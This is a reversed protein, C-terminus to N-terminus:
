VKKGITTTDTGDTMYQAPGKNYHSAIRKRKADIEKITEPTEPQHGRWRWDDISTVFGNGVGNSLPPLVKREREEPQLKGRESLDRVKIGMSALFADHAARAKLLRETPKKARRYRM